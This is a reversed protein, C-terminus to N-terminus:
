RHMISNCCSLSYVFTHPLILVTNPWTYIFCKRRRPCQCSILIQHLFLTQYSTNPDKYLRHYFCFLFTYVLAILISTLTNKLYTSTYLGIPYSASTNISSDLVHKLLVYINSYQPDQFYLRHSIKKFLHFITPKFWGTIPITFDIM